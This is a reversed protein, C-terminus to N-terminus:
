PFVGDCVGDLLEEARTMYRATRSQANRKIVSRTFADKRKWESYFADGFPITTLGRTNM